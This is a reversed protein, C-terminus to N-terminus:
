PENSRRRLIVKVYDDTAEFIPEQNNEAKMLPIIKTRVGMGRADVYGYDRLLNVILPNRPSRQGAIMKEITMSNQMAGPSIVELRDSYVTIEIDVSRTWDRHAIANIVAERVAEWPYLWIRERRMEANIAEGELSIYPRITTSIKEILGNDVNELAGSESVRLRNFLPGDIVEDILAQYTKDAGAFAMFRIGAQPLFRRPAIGFSVLGAITCPTNGNHPRAIFGLGTLREIWQDETAPREPDQIIDFLYNQVRDMDLSAISTGSVPMVEPHLLGGVGYLRAQQERTADRSTTGVRIYIREQGNHRLVYPKSTGQEVTIVAVKLGSNNTTDDPQQVTIEEYYPIILPHVKDRFCQMVWEETTSRGRNQIGTITGDDEVGLLIRGGQLNALAVVEKGLDEPRIDDRKFEVGSNEGNAIIELLETKLM